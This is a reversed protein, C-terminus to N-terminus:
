ANVESPSAEQAGLASLERMAAVASMRDVEVDSETVVEALSPALLEELNRIAKDARAVFEVTKELDSFDVSLVAAPGEELARLASDVAAVHRAVNAPTLDRIQAQLSEDGISHKAAESVKIVERVSKLYEEVGISLPETSIRWHRLVPELARMRQELGTREATLVVDLRAWDTKALKGISPYDVLTADVDIDGLTTDDSAASLHEILMRPDIYNLGGGGQRVALEELLDNRVEHVRQPLDAVMERAERSFTHLPGPTFGVIQEIAAATESPLEKRQSFRYALRLFRVGYRLAAERDCKNVDYARILRDSCSTLWAGYRRRADDGGAFRWSSGGLHKFAVLDKLLDYVDQSRSFSFRAKTSVAPKRVMGEIEINSTKVPKSRKQIAESPVRVEELQLSEQVVSLLLERFDSDGKLPLGQQFWEDLRRIAEDHKHSTQPPPEAPKEARPTPVPRLSEQALVGKSFQPQGFWPLMSQLHGAGERLTEAGTWYYLLYSLRNRHDAGWGVLMRDQEAGLDRPSHAQIALGLSPGQFGVAMRNLLPLAVHQLLTRPTRLQAENSQGNLLRGAAGPSLPFLGVQSEGFRVFGFTDFCQSKLSCEDCASQRQDGHHRVDEALVAIQDPGARMANLYRAVFLDAADDSAEQDRFSSDQALTVVRNIRERLNDPLQTYAPETMGLVGLLPCLSPDNQPQLANVLEEDLVSLTSVDEIFIALIEGRRRMETRIDRFIENLTHGRLGTLGAIAQRLFSNTYEACQRRVGEDDELRLKLDEDFNVRATPPFEFDETTFFPLTERAEADSQETLRRINRDIAGHRRCLWGVTGNDNFVEDLRRTRKPAADRAAFLSNHMETYLRRNAADGSVGEIAAQIKDMYQGYEPLQSVLQQLADKLSGSRRRILVNRLRLDGLAPRDGQEVADDFRLKLWNILQSKGTGQSGKVVLLTEPKTSAFLQDFLERETVAGAGDACIIPSHTALFWDIADAGVQSIPSLMRDAYDVDWCVDGPKTPKGEPTM